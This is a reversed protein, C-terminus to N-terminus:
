GRQVCAPEGCTPGSPGPIADKQPLYVGCRACRIMTEAPPPSGPGRAAAGSRRAAKALNLLRLGLLLVIVIGVWLLIKTM